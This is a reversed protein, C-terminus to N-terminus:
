YAQLEEAPSGLVSCRLAGPRLEGTSLLFPIMGERSRSAVRRRTCSLIHNASQGALAHPQSTNMKTGVLTGLNKAALSSGLRPQNYRTNYGCSKASRIGSSWSTGALGKQLRELDRQIGARGEPADTVEGLSEM